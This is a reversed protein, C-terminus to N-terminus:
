ILFLFSLRFRDDFVVHQKSLCNKSDLTRQRRARHYLKSRNTAFDSNGNVELIGSSLFKIFAAITGGSDLSYLLKEGPDVSPVVGDQVGIAVKFAEGADKFLTEM